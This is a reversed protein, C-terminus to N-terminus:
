NAELETTIEFDSVQIGAQTLTHIPAAKADPRVVVWIGRGNPTASYGDAQLLALAQQRQETATHLKLRTTLGLRTTIEHPPAEFALSGSQLVLVRQALAELEELRHSSFLITKGAARQEVLLRIFNERGEADLNSTPEDLLLIPPDALLAAALALRQKMGGSLQAVLKHGHDTLGVQALVAPARAPSVKKLGAYFRLTELATMEYFALEQPVYGVAARAQKGQRAVDYGALTAHGEFRYLGLLCKLITTKGAGNAGWLAVAEGQQVQFSLRNLVPTGDFRKSIHHVAIM